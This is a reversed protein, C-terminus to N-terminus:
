EARSRSTSGTVPGAATAPKNPKKAAAKEDDDDDAAPKHAPVESKATAPKAPKDDDADAGSTEAVPASPKSPPKKQPREADGGDDDDDDGPEAERSLLTSAGRVVVKTGVEFGTDVLYGSAVPMTMAVKRREYTQPATEVYCWTEGGYVVLAAEPIVVGKQAEGSDALARARDNHRLGPGPPILGFFSIGPMAANGSPAPWLTKVPVDSGGSLPAVRINGLQAAQPAPFDVRVLVSKGASLAEILGKRSEEKVFPSTDGWGQKLKLNLADLQAAATEAQRQAGEVIHLSLSKTSKYRQLEREAFTAAIDAARIDGDLAILTDPSMVSAIGTVTQSLEAPELVVTKVVAPPQEGAEPVAPGDAGLAPWATPPVLLCCLIVIQRLM